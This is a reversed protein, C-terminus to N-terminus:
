RQRSQAAGPPGIRTSSWDPASPSVKAKTLSSRSGVRCSSASRLPAVGRWRTIPCIICAVSETRMSESFFKRSTTSPIWAMVLRDVSGVWTNRRDWAYSPSKSRMPSFFLSPPWNKVGLSTMRAM